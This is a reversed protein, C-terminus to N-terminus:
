NDLIDFLCKEDKKAHLKKYSKISDLLKVTDMFYSSVFSKSKVSDVKLHQKCYESPKLNKSNTFSNYWGESIVILMEIEPTTLINFIRINKEDISKQYVRGLNFKETRSDLIRLINLHAEGYDRQLYDKSFRKPSRVKTTQRILKEENHYDEKKFLLKNENLLKKIITEEANGECICIVHGTKISEKLYKPM